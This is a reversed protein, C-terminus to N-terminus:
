AADKLGGTHAGCADRRLRCGLAAGLKELAVEHEALVQHYEIEYSFLKVQANLLTLFDIDGTQYGFVSSSLTDRAEPLISERYRDLEASYSDIRLVLEAVQFMLQSKAAELAAKAQSLRYTAEEVSKDQKRSRHVPVSFSLSLSVFDEGGVPDM